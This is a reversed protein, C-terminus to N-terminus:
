LAKEPREPNAFDVEFAGTMDHPEDKQNCLKGKFLCRLFMEACKVMKWATWGSLGPM